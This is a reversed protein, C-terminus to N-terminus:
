GLTRVVRAPVGVALVREPLDHVVVSGAGVVTDRGISVGPCVTVSAGLWANDGVEIPLAREWGERRREHDEVPHQATVLQAAPGIRADAGVVTPADDMLFAGANIFARAGLRVNTGYSCRLHPIVVAGHGVEGLLDALVARRVDDADAAATNFADLLRDCARRRDRLVEDDLYWEARALRESQESPGTM